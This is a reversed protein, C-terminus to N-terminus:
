VVFVSVMTSLVVNSILGVLPAGKNLETAEPPVTFTSFFIRNNYARQFDLRADGRDLFCHRVNFFTFLYYCNATRLRTSGTLGIALESGTAM